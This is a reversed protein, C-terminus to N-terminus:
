RKKRMKTEQKDIKHQAYYYQEWVAQGLQIGCQGVNITLVESLMKTAM